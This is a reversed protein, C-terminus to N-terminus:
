LGRPHAVDLRHVLLHHLHLLPLQVGEGMLLGLEHLLLHLLHGLGLTVLLSLHWWSRDSLGLLRLQWLWHWRRRHSGLRGGVTVLISSHRHLQVM